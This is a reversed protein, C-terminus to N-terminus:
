SPLKKKKSKKKRNKFLCIIFAMLPIGIQMPLHIYKTILELGIKVHQPYSKAIFESVIITIIGFPIALFKNNKLKFLEGASLTATYMFLSIKMFGAVVMTIIILIDLRDMFGGIRILRLTELLPFVSSTAYAAGLSTVFVVTIISLVIGEVIIALIAIKKIKKPENLNKFLMTFIILEGYPFTILKWGKTIALVPGDELIPLLRKFEIIGRTALLLIIAIFLGLIMLPFLIESARCLNEIGTIVGYIVTIGILIAIFLTPTQPMTSISILGSFDRLVRASLYEFYLVYALGLIFGLYKGFLKPLYTVITDNPYCTFLKIYILQLMIAPIIYFLITLWADQKVDPVLFFLVASGYPLIFMASLLQYPSFKNEM